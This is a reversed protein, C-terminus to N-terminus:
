FSELGYLNCDKRLAENNHIGKKMHSKHSSLRGSVNGAEGYYRWNNIKCIVMYIGPQKRPQLNNPVSYDPKEDSQSNNAFSDPSGGNLRTRMRKKRFPPAIPLKGLPMGDSFSGQGIPYIIFVATAAAVPASYAVAIWPRMGLRFSLEWERGM